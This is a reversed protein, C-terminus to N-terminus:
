DVRCDIFGVLFCVLLSRFNRNCSVITDKSLQSGSAVM